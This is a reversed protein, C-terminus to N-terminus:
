KGEKDKKNDSKQGVETPKPATGPKSDKTKVQPEELGCDRCPILEGQKCEYPDYVKRYRPIKAFHKPLWEIKGTEKHKFYGHTTSM